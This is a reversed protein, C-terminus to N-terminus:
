TEKWKIQHQKKTQQINNKNHKPIHSSKRIKGLSTVHLTIHKILANEGDLLMIIHNNKGKINNINNISKQINLWGQMEPIFGIQDHNM